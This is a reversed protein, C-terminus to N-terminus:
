EHNISFLILSLQRTESHFQIFKSLSKGMKKRNKKNGLSRHIAYLDYKIDDTLTLLLPLTGIGILLFCEMSIMLDLIFIYQIITAVSFGM